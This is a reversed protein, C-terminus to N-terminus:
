QGVLACVHIRGLPVGTEDRAHVGRLRDAEAVVLVVKHHTVGIPVAPVPPGHRKADIVGASREAGLLRYGVSQGSVKTGELQGEYGGYGGDQAQVPSSRTEHLRLPAAEEVGDAGNKSLVGAVDNDRANYLDAPPPPSVQKLGDGNHVCRKLDLVKCPVFGKQLCSCRYM